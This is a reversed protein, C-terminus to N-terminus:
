THNPCLVVHLFYFYRQVYRKFKSHLKGPILKLFLFGATIFQM